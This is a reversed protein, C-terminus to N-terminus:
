VAQETLNDVKVKFKDLIQQATLTQKDPILYKLIDKTLCYEKLLHEQSLDIRNYIDGVISRIYSSRLIDSSRLLKIDTYPISVKNKLGLYMATRLKTLHKAKVVILSEPVINSKVYVGGISYKKSTFYDVSATQKVIFSGLLIANNGITFDIYSRNFRKGLFMSVVRDRYSPRGCDQPLILSYSKFETLLLSKLYTKLAVIFAPKNNHKVYYTLKRYLINPYYYTNLLSDNERDTKNVDLNNASPVFNILFLPVFQEPSTIEIEGFSDYNKNLDTKPLLQM